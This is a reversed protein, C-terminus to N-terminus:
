FSKSTTLTTNLEEHTVDSKTLIFSNILYNTGYAIRSPILNKFTINKEKDLSFKITEFLFEYKNISSEISNLKFIKVQLFKDTCSDM